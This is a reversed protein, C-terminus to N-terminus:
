APAAVQPRSTRAGRAERRLFAAFLRTLPLGRCMGELFVFQGQPNIELWVPAGDADLKLDLIGMRLGLGRVVQRVRAATAEDLDYPRVEADLPYRWDLTETELLAAHVEDGFCCVRLHRSGPVFEQYIAPSLRIAPDALMEPTVLGAMVPTGQAGAVTKVIVRGGLSDCFRRVTEPDQSVLTRPVRFGVRAATQLQVLKNQATRTAEPHSIWTGQFETLLAGLLTAQCDNIVLDRADEPVTVPFQPPGTLRRWWVVDLDAIRVEAGEVDRVVAPVVSADISWSLGGAWAMGNTLVIACAVDGQETLVERVVYAHFDDHRTLIAVRLM